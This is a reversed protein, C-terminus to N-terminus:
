EDGWRIQWVSEFDTGLAPQDEVPPPGFALLNCEVIALLDDRAAQDILEQILTAHADVGYHEQAVVDSALEPPTPTQVILLLSGGARLHNASGGAVLKYQLEQAIQVSCWPAPVSGDVQRLFVGSPADDPYHVTNGNILAQWQASSAIMRSLLHAAQRPASFTTPLTAPAPM